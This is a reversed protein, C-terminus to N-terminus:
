LDQAPVFINFLQVNNQIVLLLLVKTNCEWSQKLSLKLSQLFLINSELSKSLPIM